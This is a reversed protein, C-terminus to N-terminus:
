PRQQHVVQREFRMVVSGHRLGPCCFASQVSDCPYVSDDWVLYWSKLYGANLDNRKSQLSSQRSRGSMPLHCSRCSRSMQCAPDDRPARGVVGIPASILSAAGVGAGTVRSLLCYRNVTLSALAHSPEFSFATCSWGADPAGINLTIVLSCLLPRSASVMLQGLVSLSGATLDTMSLTSM